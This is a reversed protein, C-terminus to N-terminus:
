SEFEILDINAYERNVFWNLWFNDKYKKAFKIDANFGIVEEYLTNESSMGNTDIITYQNQGNIIYKDVREQLVKGEMVKLEYNYDATSQIGIIPVVTLFLSVATIVGIACSIFGFVDRYDKYKGTDFHLLLSGAVFCGIMLIVLILIIGM